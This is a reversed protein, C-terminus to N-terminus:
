AFPNSLEAEGSIIDRFHKRESESSVALLTGTDIRKEAILNQAQQVFDEVAEKPHLIFGIMSKYTKYFTGLGERYRLTYYITSHTHPLGDYVFDKATLALQRRLAVVPNIAFLEKINYGALYLAKIEKYVSEKVARRQFWSCITSGVFGLPLLYKLWELATNMNM